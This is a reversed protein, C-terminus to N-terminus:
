AFTSQIIEIYFRLFLSTRYKEYFNILDFARASIPVTESGIYYLPEGIPALGIGMRRLSRILKVDIEALM